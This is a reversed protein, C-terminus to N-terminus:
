RRGDALKLADPTARLRLMAVTGLAPGVALAAWAVGWGVADELVPVLWITFVTLAFGLGTQFTLATGRYQPECLETMATSFQASDAIIAAGWVLAVVGIAVTWDVPLFGIVLASAGSLLMAFSTTLTRGYRDAAIGALVSGAAGAGFTAFVVASSLDIRGGFLSGTGYVMGLFAGIWAWMAYLEWMHGLYGFLTLRQGRDTFINLMTRPNFRAGGVDFPGDRVFALVLLGGLSALLSSGFVTAEWNGVFMSRLLHPSGSGITLAAIMVGLAAGRGGQFWGSVIKMATPYVGALAIGTAFRVSALLAIGELPVVAANLAAGTWAACAFLMRAPVRDALNFVASILTGMVFGVQVAITLWSLDVTSLGKEQELAPGIANTSFWISLVLITTVSVIGLMRRRTGAVQGRDQATLDSM